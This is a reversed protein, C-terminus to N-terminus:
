HVFSKSIISSVLGQLFGLLGSLIILLQSSSNRNEERRTRGESIELIDGGNPNYLGFM